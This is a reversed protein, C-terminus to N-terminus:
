EVIETESLCIDEDPFIRDGNENYGRMTLRALPRTYGQDFFFEPYKQAFPEYDIHRMLHESLTIIKRDKSIIQCGQYRGYIDAIIKEHEIDIANVWECADQKIEAPRHFNRRECKYIYYGHDDKPDYALIEDENHPRTTRMLTPGYTGDVLRTLLFYVVHTKPDERTWIEGRTAHLIGYSCVSILALTRMTKM